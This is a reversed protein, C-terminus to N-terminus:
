RTRGDAKALRNRRVKMFGYSVAFVAVLLMWTM